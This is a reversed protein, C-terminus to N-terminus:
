QKNEKDTKFFPRVLWATVGLSIVLFILAMLPCTDSIGAIEKVMLFITWAVTVITFLKVIAITVDNQKRRDEEMKRHADRVGQKVHLTLERRDGELGLGRVMGQYLLPPLFDYSFDDYFYYKEMKEIELSLKAVNKDAPENRYHNNRQFCYYEQVLCRMYLMDFYRFDLESYQFVPDIALVTFTDNLALAKWNSFVSLANDRIISHFYDDSPKFSAKLNTDAVVGVTSHTALEYLLDDRLTPEDVQVVQYQRMKTEDLTLHALTKKFSGDPSPKLDDDTTLEALPRLLKDLTDTSFNHEYNQSWNKWQAHMATIDSLTNGSDDIEISFLILNCIPFFWVSVNKVICRYETTGWRARLPLVLPGHEPLLANYRAVGHLDDPRAVGHPDDPPPTETSASTETMAYIHATYYHGKLDNFDNESLRHRRWTGPMNDLDAHTLGLRANLQGVLQLTSSVPRADPHHASTPHLTNYKM